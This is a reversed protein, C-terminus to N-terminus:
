MVNEQNQYLQIPTSHRKKRKAAHICSWTQIYSANQIHIYRVCSQSQRWCKRYFTTQQQTITSDVRQWTAIGIRNSTSQKQSYRENAVCFEADRMLLCSYSAFQHSTTTKRNQALACITHFTRVRLLSYHNENLSFHYVCVYVCDICIAYHCLNAVSELHELTSKSKLM